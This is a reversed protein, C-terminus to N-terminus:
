ILFEGLYIADIFLLRHRLDLVTLILAFIIDCLINWILSLSNSDYKLMKCSNSILNAFLFVVIFWFVYRRKFWWIYRFDLYADIEKINTLFQFHWIFVWDNDQSQNISKCRHCLFGMITNIMSSLRVQGKLLSVRQSNIRKCNVPLDFYSKWKKL